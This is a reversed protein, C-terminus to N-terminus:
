GHVIKRLDGVEIALDRPDVRVVCRHQQDIVLTAQELRDLVHGHGFQPGVGNGQGLDGAQGLDRQDGGGRDWLAGVARQNGLDMFRCRM